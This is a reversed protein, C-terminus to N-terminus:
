LDAYRLAIIKRIKEKDVSHKIDLRRRSLQHERYLYLVAAIRRYKGKQLARILWDIDGAFPLDCDLLGVQKFFDKKMMITTHHVLYAMKGSKLKNFYQKWVSVGTDDTAKLKELAMGREDIKQIDGHVFDFLDNNELYRTRLELSNLPLLDDSHLWTVYKGKALNM